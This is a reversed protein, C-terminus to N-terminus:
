DITVSWDTLRIAVDIKKYEDFLDNRQQILKLIDLDTNNSIISSILNLKKSIGRRITVASSLSIESDGISIKAQDNVKNIILETNQISDIIKLLEKVLADQQDSGNIVFNELEKMESKLKKLEDVKERLYM